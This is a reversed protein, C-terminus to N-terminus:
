APEKQQTKPRRGVTVKLEMEQQNRVVKFTAQAGPNLAAVLNLMTSSDVVPKGEVAILIDGLKLLKNSLNTGAACSFAHVLFLFLHICRLIFGEHTLRQFKGGQTHVGRCGIRPHATDEHLGGSHHASSPMLPRAFRM